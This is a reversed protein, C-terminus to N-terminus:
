KKFILQKLNIIDNISILLDSMKIKSISYFSFLRLLFIFASSFLLTLVLGNLNFKPILIYSLITILICAIINNNVNRKVEGIVIFFNSLISSTNFLILGFVLLKFIDFVELYREGYFLVILYKMFFLSTISVIVTLYFSLKFSLFVIKNNKKKNGTNSLKSLFITNLAAPIPLSLFNSIVLALSFFAFIEVEINQAGIFRYFNLFYINMLGFIYIKSSYKIISQFTILDFRIRILFISHLKISYIILGIIQPLIFYSLLAGLFGLDFIFVLIFSSILATSWFINQALYYFNVNKKALIFNSYNFYFINLPLVLFILNLSNKFLDINKNSYYDDIQDKFLYFTILIFILSIITITVSSVFCKNFSFRKTGVFYISSVDHQLKSITEISSYILIYIFWLGLLYTDFSRALIIGMLALCINAFLVSPLALKLYRFIFM